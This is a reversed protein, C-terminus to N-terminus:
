RSAETEPELLWEEYRESTVDMGLAFAHGAKYLATVVAPNPHQISLGCTCTKKWEPAGLRTVIRFASVHHNM